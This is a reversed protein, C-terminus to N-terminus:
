LKEALLINNLYLDNRKPLIAHWFIFWSNLLLVTVPRINTVFFKLRGLVPISPIFHESFYVVRMQYLTSTFDGSKDQILIKFGHKEFLHKLAFQTYRAYDAPLEHESWVFPCTILIKGGKKMVRGIETILEEANFLHEFVESSFVSNFYEDPFPIHSGNYFVDVTENVHPHGEGEYDLGVYKTVNTFLVEYPKNGCGFDLLSGSLEHSYLKIKLYLGRRIFYFPSSLGPNFSKSVKKQMFAFLHMQSFYLIILKQV